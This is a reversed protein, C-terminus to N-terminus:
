SFITIEKIEPMLKNGAIRGSFHPNRTAPQPNVIIEAPQPNRARPGFKKIRTAPQPCLFGAPLRACAVPHVGWFRCRFNSMITGGKCNKSLFRCRINTIDIEGYDSMFENIRFKITLLYFSFRM